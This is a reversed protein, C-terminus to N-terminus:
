FAALCLPKKECFFARNITAVCRSDSIEARGLEWLKEFGVAGMLMSSFDSIDLGVEFDYRGTKKLTAHGNELDLILSKDNAPLFTDTITFRARFNQANFDHHELVKWIGITDLLRYMVGVGCVNSEHYVSPIMNDTGNRPDLFLNHFDDDVINIIVQAIQDSQSNLFTMMETLAERSEYLIERVVLNNAVFNKDHAPAFGFNMYGSIKGNKEYGALWLNNSMELIHRFGTKTEEIMGNRLMCYRRYFDTLASIDNKGFFRIHEKSKGKLIAEPKVRYQSIKAGYGFGMKRYFDPRFPWLVALPAGQTRYHELYSQIMEKCIREKKYRLDVAVMGVGGALVKKGFLNMSFDHYRMGGVMQKGRYAGWLSIRKDELRKLYRIRARERDESTFLKMGPYAEAAIRIFEAVEWGKMRRIVAM